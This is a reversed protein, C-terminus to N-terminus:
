KNKYVIIQEEEQKKKKKMKKDENYTSEVTFIFYIKQIDNWIWQVKISMESHTLFDCTLAM